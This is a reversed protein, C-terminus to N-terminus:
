FQSTNGLKGMCATHGMWRTKRPKIVKIINLSSYLDHLAHPVQKKSLPMMYTYAINGIYRSIGITGM